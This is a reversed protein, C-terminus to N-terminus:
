RDPQQEPQQELTKQAPRTRLIGDILAPNDATATEQDVMCRVDIEDLEDDSDVETCTLFPPTRSSATPENDEM